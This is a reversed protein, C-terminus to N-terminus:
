EQPLCAKLYPDAIDAFLDVLNEGGTRDVQQDQAVGNVAVFAGRSEGCHAGRLFVRRDEKQRSIVSVGEDGFVSRDEAGKVARVAEQLGNAPEGM